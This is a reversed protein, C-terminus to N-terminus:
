ADAADFAKAEEVIRRAITEVSLQDTREELFVRHAKLAIGAIAIPSTPLRITAVTRGPGTIFDATAKIARHTKEDERTAYRFRWAGIRRDVPTKGPGASALGAAAFLRCDFDRCTQPRHEYVTCRANLLMPCTGDARYGMYRIGVPADPVEHLYDPPLQGVLKADAARLAIPWAASCCGVCDGCPVDLGPGGRLSASMAELWQRFDGADVPPRTSHDPETM